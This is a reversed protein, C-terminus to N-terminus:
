KRFPIDLVPWRMCASLEEKLVAALKADIDCTKVTWTSDALLQAKKPWHTISEKLVAKTGEGLQKLPPTQLMKYGAPMNIRVKQDIIYPFRLTYSSERGVLEGVRGPIGGPLRLLLNGAYVIGPVCKVKFELRYGTKTPVISTPALNMGPIAFNINKLTSAINQSPLHGGSMLETWGGSVNIALTGEATGAADLNLIWTLSM